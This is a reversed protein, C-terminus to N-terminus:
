GEEEEEEKDEKIGGAEEEERFRGGGEGRGEEIGREEEDYRGEWTGM